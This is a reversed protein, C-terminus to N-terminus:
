LSKVGRPQINYLLLIVSAPDTVSEYTQCDFRHTREAEGIEERWNKGKLLFLKHSPTLEHQLLLLISAVSAFARATIVAFDRLCVTEVRQHHIVNAVGLVRSAERLFAVKKGDSEVMAVRHGAISLVMGPLGAGTGIDILLSGLPMLGVLQYCDLIHRCWIQSVTSNSILNVSSQWKRLLSEYQFLKEYTERSVPFHTCFQEYSFNETTM